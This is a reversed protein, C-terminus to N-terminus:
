IEEIEAVELDEPTLEDLLKTLEENEEDDVYPVTTLLMLKLSDNKHRDIYEKVAEEVIQSISKDTIMKIENLLDWTEKDMMINHRTRM